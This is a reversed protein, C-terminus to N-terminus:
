PIPTGKSPITKLLYGVIAEIQQADLPGDEAKAFAPMMTGARGYIIWKRWHEADTPHNLTSLDPVTSARHESDHCVGCVGKYLQAGDVVGKAPDAHCSVCEAKKFIAQRDALATQMNKLRDADAMGPASPLAPTITTKVTLMKRGATSDVTVAKTVVGSKGALDMKVDISSSTGPAIRWPTAPLQAVTCFCSSQAKMIFIEAKSTNTFWFKFEAYREGPKSTFEKSEADWVLANTDAALLATRGGALMLVLMVLFSTVNKM